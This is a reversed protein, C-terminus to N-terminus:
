RRLRGQNEADSALMDSVAGMSGCLYVSVRVGDSMWRSTLECACGSVRCVHLCVIECVCAYVRAGSCVCVCVPVRWFVGVWLLYVFDCYCALVCVGVCALVCALVYVRM